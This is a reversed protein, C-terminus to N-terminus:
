IPYSLIILLNPQNCKNFIFKKFESLHFSTNTIKVFTPRIKNLFGPSKSGIKNTENTSAITIFSGM